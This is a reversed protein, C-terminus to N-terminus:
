PKRFGTFEKICHGSNVLFTFTAHPTGSEDHITVEKVAYQGPAPSKGQDRVPSFGRSRLLTEQEAFSMSSAPSAKSDPHELM